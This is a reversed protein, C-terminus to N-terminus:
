KGSNQKLYAIIASREEAKQVRFGMDNGPLRAEPDTLWEDLTTENWEITSNKLADSYEFSTVAGAARGFVGRLRPGGKDRDLAHCGGCRREFLEKGDPASQALGPASVCVVAAFLGATVVATVARCGRDQM